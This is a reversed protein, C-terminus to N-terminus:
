SKGLTVSLGFNLLVMAYNKLSYDQVSQM